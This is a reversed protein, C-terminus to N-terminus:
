VQRGRRVLGVVVAARSRGSRDLLRSGGGGGGRRCFENFARACLRAHEGAPCRADDVRLFPARQALPVPMLAYVTRDFLGKLPRATVLGPLVTVRSSRPPQATLPNM